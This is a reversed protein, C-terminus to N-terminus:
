LFGELLPAISGARMPIVPEWHSLGVAQRIYLSPTKVYGHLEAKVTSNGSMDSM